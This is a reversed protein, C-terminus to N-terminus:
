PKGELRAATADTEGALRVQWCLFGYMPYTPPQWGERIFGNTIGTGKDDLILITDIRQALRCYESSCDEWVVGSQFVHEGKLSVAILDGSQIEADGVAVYGQGPIEVGLAVWTFALDGDSQLYYVKILRFPQIINVEREEGAVGYFRWEREDSLFRLGQWPATRLQDILEREKERVDIGASTVSQDPDQITIGSNIVIFAFVLCGLVALICAAILLKRTM